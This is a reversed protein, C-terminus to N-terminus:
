RSVVDQNNLLSWAAALAGYGAKELTDASGVVIVDNEEPKMSDVLNRYVKPFDEAVNRYDPPVTLKGDKFILTTAGKAGTLLAADRQEMGLKIKRSCGKVLVAVNFAGLTLGSRELVIKRPFAAHLINWTKEGKKSFVCGVRNITILGYSKLREILTRTAGEGLVLEKSLRNRGIPREAILELAKIVHVVSFSPRPGPAKERVFEELLRKLCKAEELLNSIPNIEIKGL